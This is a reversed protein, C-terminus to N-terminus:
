TGPAGTKRSAAEANRWTALQTLCTAKLAIEEETDIARGLWTKSKPKAALLNEVCEPFPTAFSRDVQVQPPPCQAQVWVPDRPRTASETSCGFLTTLSLLALAVTLVRHSSIARRRQGSRQQERM